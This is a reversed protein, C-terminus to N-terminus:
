QSLLDLNLGAYRRFGKDFTVLQLSATKAFAALFANNWIKPSFSEDNTLKRWEAEIGAPEIEIFIRSDSLLFDYADWAKPLSLADDGFVKPNTSLRLYGQQTM